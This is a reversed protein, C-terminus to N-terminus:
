SDQADDNARNQPLIFLAIKITYIGHLKVFELKVKM